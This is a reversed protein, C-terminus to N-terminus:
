ASIAARLRSSNARIYLHVLHGQQTRPPATGQDTVLRLHAGPRTSREELWALVEARNFRYERGLRRAPLLGPPRGGSSRGSARAALSGGLMLTYERRDHLQEGTSSERPAITQVLEQPLPSHALHPRRCVEDRPARHRDLDQDQRAVLLQHPLRAGAENELCAAGTRDRV